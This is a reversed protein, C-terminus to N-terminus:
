FQDPNMSDELLDPDKPRNVKALMQSGAIGLVAGIGYIWFSMGVGVFGPPGPKKAVFVMGTILTVMVGLLGITSPTIPLQPRKNALALAAAGILGLAAALSAILTTWGMPSFAGSAMQSATEGHASWEEVFAANSMRQCEPSCVENDRLGFGIQEYSSSTNVLWQRTFSAYILCAAASLALGIGLM